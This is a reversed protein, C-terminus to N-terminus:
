WVGCPFGFGFHEKNFHRVVDRGYKYARRNGVPCLLCFHNDKGPAMERTQLLLQWMKTAGGYALSMERTRIPAMLAEITVGGAFIVDHLVGATDIDAGECILRTYLKFVDGEYTQPPLRAGRLRLSSVSIDMANGMPIRGISMQEEQVHRDGYNCVPVREINWPAADMTPVPAGVFGSTDGNLCFPNGIAGLGHGPSDVAPIPGTGPDQVCYAQDIDCSYTTQAHFTQVGTASLAHTGIPPSTLGRTDLLAAQPEEPSLQAPLFLSRTAGRREPLTNWPFM